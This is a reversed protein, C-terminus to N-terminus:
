RHYDGLALHMVEHGLRCTAADDVARPPLTYVVAQGNRYGAFGTLNDREKRVGRRVEGIEMGSNRYVAELWARDVVRWEIPPLEVVAGPEPAGQVAEGCGTLLLCLLLWRM